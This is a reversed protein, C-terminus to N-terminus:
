ETLTTPDVGLERLKAALRQAQQEAQEARAHEQEARAREQEARAREQEVLMEMEVPRLIKRGDPRLVSLEGDTELQLTVGLLPSHWQGQHAVPRLTDGERQWIELSGGDPDYEYYEQVGYREYFKRKDYMERWTNGPSLIEFVVQPAMGGEEWQRYSGRHGKPRGFAVLVDPATCIEPHGEVPYWFLNGAVFVDPHAAFLSDLGVQITIMYQYQKTNDAMPQGDSDPYVLEEATLAPSTPNVAQSM